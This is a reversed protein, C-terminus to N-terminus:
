ERWIIKDKNNAIANKIDIELLEALELEYQRIDYIEKIDNNCSVAYDILHLLFDIPEIFTFKKYEKLLYKICGLEKETAIWLKNINTIKIFYNLIDELTYRVKIEKYFKYNDENNWTPPPSIILLEKHFYVKNFDILSDKTIQSPIDEITLIKKPRVLGIIMYIEADTLGSEELYNFFNCTKKYDEYNDPYEGIMFNFYFDAYSNITDYM